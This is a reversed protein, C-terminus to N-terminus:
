IDYVGTSIFFELADPLLRWSIVAAKRLYTQFDLCVTIEEGCSYVIDMQPDLGMWSVQTAVIYGWPLPVCTGM